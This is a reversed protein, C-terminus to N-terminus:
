LRTVSWHLLRFTVGGVDVTSTTTEVKVEGKKFVIGDWLSMWTERSHYFCSIDIGLVTHHVIGKELAISQTGCITSGSECSLLGGLARALELQKQEDFLHFLKSAHIIGVRGHLDNLSRLTQIDPIASEPVFRAPQSISLFAPDFIDGPIFLIPELSSKFLKRGLESFAEKIDSAIINHAPFGDEVAKRVDAGLCSGVDLLIAGESGRKLIHDYIHLKSMTQHLFDFGRICAYPAVKYAERQVDIIHTKLDVEDQIGTHRRFFAIEEPDLCYLSDDLPFSPIIPKVLPEIDRFM